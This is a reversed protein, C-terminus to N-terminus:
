LYFRIFSSFPWEIVIMFFVFWLLVYGLQIQSLPVAGETFPELAIPVVRKIAKALIYIVGGSGWLSTLLVSTKKYSPIATSKGGGNVSTMRTMTTTRPTLCIPTRRRAAATSSMTNVPAEGRMVTSSAGLNNSYVPSTPLKRAHAFSFGIDLSGIIALLSLFIRCSPRM